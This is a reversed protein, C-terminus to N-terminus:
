QTRGRRFLESALSLNLEGRTAPTATITNLGSTLEGELNITETWSSSDNGAITAVDTGNLSITVDSPYYTTGDFQTTVEPSLPVTSDTTTTTGGGSSTTETTGGGSESTVTQSEGGTTGTMGSVSPAADGTLKNLEVLHDHPDDPSDESTYRTFSMDHDHSDASLTGSTHDHDMLEVTVDHKHDSISVSHTHSGISVSHDHSEPLVPSRWARGQVALTVVQEEVIDDPWNVVILEQPTGDGAANWGSTIQARDVFGEYGRNFRQLDKRAKQGSDEGTLLRNTLSLVYSVGASELIERRSVIRLMRDIGEEPLTVTVRDGLDVDVGIATAEIEIHAPENEIETIRQELISELRTKVKIDKNEYERWVQKGGGYSDAVVKATVQDPGSQAGFGRLHTVDERADETVEPEDIITRESPSLVVGSRDAGLRSVYDVTQDYNFRLEGGGAEETDRLAKSPNAYSFSMSLGSKVTEVTGAELTGVQDVLGTVIVSDDTNQYIVNDGLPEADLADREYGAIRVEITADDGKSDDDFRGAFWTGSGDDVILHDTRRELIDDVDRWTERELTVIAHDIEGRVEEVKEARTADVSLKRERNQDDVHLTITPM